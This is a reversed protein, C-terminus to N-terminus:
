VPHIEEVFYGEVYDGLRSCLVLCPSRAVVSIADIQLMRM